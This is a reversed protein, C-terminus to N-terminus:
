SQKNDNPLMRKERFTLQLQYAIEHKQYPITESQNSQM